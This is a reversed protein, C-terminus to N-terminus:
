IYQRPDIGWKEIFKRHNREILERLATSDQKKFSVSGHHHVFTDGAMILSYGALRARYCYDDDEYHGPTFREDLYGIREMMERKILFCFGVLREISVWKSSDPHNREATWAHFEDMSGYTYEAQQRGSVYNSCPGVIGTDPTHDLCALMNDLWNHSVVVDNNLLLLADGVALKMGANCAAPFGENEAFAAFTLGERICYELTGDASGNDAVIIEYPTHTYARIAEICPALLELGNRTPIIISTLRM